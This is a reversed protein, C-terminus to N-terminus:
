PDIGTQPRGSRQVGFRLVSISEEHHSGSQEPFVREDAGLAVGHSTSRRVDMFVRSPVPRQPIEVVFHGCEFVTECEDHDPERCETTHPVVQISIDVTECETDETYEITSSQRVIGYISYRSM